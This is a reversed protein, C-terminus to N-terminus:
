DINTHGLSNNKYQEIEAAEHLDEVIQGYREQYWASFGLPPYNIGGHHNWMCIILSVGSVSISTLRKVKISNLSSNRGGYDHCLAKYYKCKKCKRHNSCSVCM